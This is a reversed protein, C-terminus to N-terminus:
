AALTELYLDVDSDSPVEPLRVLVRGLFLIDLGRGRAGPRIAFSAADDDAAGARPLQVVIAERRPDFGHLVIPEGKSLNVSVCPTIRENGCATTDAHSAIALSVYRAPRLLDTCALVIAVLIIGLALTNLM